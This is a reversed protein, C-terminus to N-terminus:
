IFIPHIRITLTAQPPFVLLTLWNVMLDKLFDVMEVHQPKGLGRPVSCFDDFVEITLKLPQSNSNNSFINACKKIVPFFFSFRNSCVLERVTPFIFAEIRYNFDAASLKINRSSGM